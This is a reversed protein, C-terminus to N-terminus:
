AHHTVRAILVAKLPMISKAWIGGHELKTKEHNYIHMKKM